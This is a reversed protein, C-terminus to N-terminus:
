RSIGRGAKIGLGKNKRIQMAQKWPVLSFEKGKQLVAFRGSALKIAKSVPKKQREGAVEPQYSLSSAFVRVGFGKLEDCWVFYDKDRPANQDILRKTLKPLAATEV